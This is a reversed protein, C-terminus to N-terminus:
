RFLLNASVSLIKSSKPSWKEMFERAGNVAMDLEDCEKYLIDDSPIKFDVVEDLLSKLLKLVDVITRYDKQIPIRKSTQSSVLHVFRSISNILCKISAIDM